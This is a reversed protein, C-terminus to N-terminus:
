RLGDRERSGTGGSFMEYCDQAIRFHKEGMIHWMSRPLAGMGVLDSIYELTSENIPKVGPYQPQSGASASRTPM